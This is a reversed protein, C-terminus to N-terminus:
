NEGKIELIIKEVSQSFENDEKLLDEIKKVASIVTSHDRNGFSKGIDIFANDTLERSLFMAIQRPFAINKPRKKSDLEEITVNYNRSVVNKIHEINVIDPAKNTLMDKLAEKTMELNVPLNTLSSLAKIRTLAGEYERINSKVNKAIYHLIEDDVNMDFLEAKKQLIAVRTEYDPTQIDCLLGSSFRSKLREELQNIDSPPRDSAMIIQKDVSYLSNFTHFFEEQTQKKGAIFQIDDVILVDTKRYKERFEVMRNAKISSILENTFSESTFYSILADSNKSLIENAIAQILHTKGLGVQGYIFLPNFADGPNDAVSRAAAHALQSNSGVVFEDFTYKKQLGKPTKIKKQIDENNSSIIKKYDLKEDPSTLLFKHNDGTVHSIADKIRETYSKLLVNKNFDSSTLLIFVDDVVDFLEITEFWTKYIQEPVKSKIYSLIENWLIDYNEM